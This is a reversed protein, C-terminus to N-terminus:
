LLTDSPPLLGLAELRKRLIDHHTYHIGTIGMKSAAEVYELVDDIYAVPTDPPLLDLAHQYIKPDPKRLGIEHSFITEDFLDLVTFHTKIYEIHWHNTNSLLLLKAKGQLTKIIEIVQGNEWFIDCWIEQLQETHLEVPFSPLCKRLFDEPQIEGTELPSHHRADFLFQCISERDISSIRSLKDAVRHFDFFLIVNGLDFIVASQTM